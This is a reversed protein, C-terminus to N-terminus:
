QLPFPSQICHRIWRWSHSRVLYRISLYRIRWQGSMRLHYPEFKEIGDVCCPRAPISLNNQFAFYDYIDFYSGNWSTAVVNEQFSSANISAEYTKICFRVICQVAVLDPPPKTSQWNRSMVARFTTITTNDSSQLSPDVEAFYDQTSNIMGYRELSLAAGPWQISCTYAGQSCTSNSSIPMTFNTELDLYVLQDSLDTCEHCIGLSQYKPYTCNGTSCGPRLPSQSSTQLFGDYMAGIM